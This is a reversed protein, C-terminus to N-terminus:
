ENKRKFKMHSKHTGIKDLSIFHKPQIWLFSPKIAPFSSYHSYRCVYWLILSAILEVGCCWFYFVLLMAFIILLSIKKRKAIMAIILLASATLNINLEMLNLGYLCWMNVKHNSIFRSHTSNLFDNFKRGLRTNNTGLLAVNNKGRCAVLKCIGAAITQFLRIYNTDTPTHHIILAEWVCSKKKSKVEGRAPPSKKVKQFM